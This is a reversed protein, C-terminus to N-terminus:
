NKFRYNGNEDVLSESFYLTQPYVYRDGEGEDIFTWGTTDKLFLDSELETIFGENNVKAYVKFKRGFLVEAFKMKPKNEFNTVIEEVVDVLAEDNILIDDIM